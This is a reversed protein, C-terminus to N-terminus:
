PLDHLDHVLLEFSQRELEAVRGDAFTGLQLTKSAAAPAPPPTRTVSTASSAATSAAAPASASPAHHTSDCTVAKAGVDCAERRVNPYDM